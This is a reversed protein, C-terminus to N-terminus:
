NGFTRLFTVKTISKLIYNLKKALFHLRFFPTSLFIYDLQAREEQGARNLEEKEETRELGRLM